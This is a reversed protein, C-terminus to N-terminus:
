QKASKAGCTNIGLLAYLPCWGALGTVAPIAGLWGWPTKPGVFVLSIVALGIIVRLARDVNGENRFSMNMDKDLNTADSCHLEASSAENRITGSGIPRGISLWLSWSDTTTAAFGVTLPGVPTRGTLYVSASEIDGDPVGDFRDFAQGGQLRVGAYLSQGRLTFIDKLKWLYGTSLTWYSGARLEDVDHGPIQYAEALTLISDFAITQSVHTSVAYQNNECVFIVPLKWIVAM